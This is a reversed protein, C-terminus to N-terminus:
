AAIVPEEFSTMGLTVLNQAACNLANPNGGTATLGSGTVVINDIWMEEAVSNSSMSFKVTVSTFGSIDGTLHVWANEDYFTCGTPCASSGTGTAAAFAAACDPTAAADTAVGFCAHDDNDRADLLVVDAMGDGDEAWVRIFDNNEWGTSEIHLDM